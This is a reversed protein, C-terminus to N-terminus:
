LLCKELHHSTSSFLLVGLIDFDVFHEFLAFLHDLLFDAFDFGLLLIRFTLGRPVLWACCRGYCLTAQLGELLMNQVAVSYHNIILDACQFCLQFIFIAVSQLLKLVVHFSQTLTYSLAFIKQVDFHVIHVRLFSHQTSAVLHSKIGTNLLLLWLPFRRLIHHARCWLNLRFNFLLSFTLALCRSRHSTPFVGNCLCRLRLTM